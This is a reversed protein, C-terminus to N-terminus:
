ILFRMPNGDPVFGYTDANGKTYSLNDRVTWGDGLGYDFNLGSVAGKWGRGNSFDFTSSDGQADVRLTRYRTANGLHSFTGLNNGIGLLWQFFGNDM